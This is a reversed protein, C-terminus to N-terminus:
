KTSQVARVARLDEPLDLDHAIGERVVLTARYGLEVARAEHRQASDEHGFCTQMPRAMLLANTGTGRGDTAIVVDANEGQALVADIDEAALWPLDSMVVLTREGSVADRAADIVAALGRADEPDAFAKAGREVAWSRVRVSPSVVFTEAVSPHARLTAVVHAALREALAARGAADLAPSLRSKARAFDQVPVIGTVKM